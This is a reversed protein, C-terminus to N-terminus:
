LVEHVHAHVHVHVYVHVHAHVHVHMYVHVHAHVHVHVERYAATESLLYPHYDKHLPLGRACAVAFCEGNRSHCRLKKRGSAVQLHAPPRYKRIQLTRQAAIQRRCEAEVQALRTLERCDVQVPQKRLLRAGAYPKLKRM